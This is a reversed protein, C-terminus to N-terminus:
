LGGLYFALLGDSSEIGLIDMLSELETGFHERGETDEEQVQVLGRQFQALVWLKTPNMEIGRLLTDALENLVEALREREATLDVGPLDLLKARHRFASLRKLATADITLPEDVVDALPDHPLRVESFRIHELNGQSELKGADVMAIVRQAFYGVSVKDLQEPMQELATAIVRAVKRFSSVCDSLLAEDIREVESPTLRNAVAQEEDNMLTDPPGEHVHTDLDRYQIVLPARLKSLISVVVDTHADIYEERGPEEPLSWLVAEAEGLVALAREYIGYLKEAHEREIM